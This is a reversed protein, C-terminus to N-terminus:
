NDQKTTMPSLASSLEAKFIEEKPKDVISDEQNGTTSISTSTPKPTTATTAIVPTSQETTSTTKALVGAKRCDPHVKKKRLINV